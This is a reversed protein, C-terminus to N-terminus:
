RRWSPPLHLEGGRQHRSSVSEHFYDKLRAPMTRGARFSMNKQDRRAAQWAAEEEPTMALPPIAEFEAIWREISEADTPWEEEAVEVPTTEPIREVLVESDEPWSVPESLYIQGNRYRGKITNM